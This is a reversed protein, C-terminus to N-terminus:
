SWERDWSDIKTWDDTPAFFMEGSKLHAKVVEENLEFAM